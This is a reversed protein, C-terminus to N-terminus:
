HAAEPRRSVLQTAAHQRQGPHHKLPPALLVTPLPVPAKGSLTAEGADGGVARGEGVDYKMGWRDWAARHAGHADHTAGIWPDGEGRLRPEKNVQKNM